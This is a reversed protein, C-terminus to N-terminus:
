KLFVNHLFARDINALYCRTVVKSAIFNPITKLNWNRHRV